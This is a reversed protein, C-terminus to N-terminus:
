REACVMSTLLLLRTRSRHSPMAVLSWSAEQSPQLRKMLIVSLTLLKTPRPTSQALHKPSLLRGQGASRLRGLVSSAM